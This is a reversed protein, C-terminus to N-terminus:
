PSFFRGRRGLVGLRLSLPLSLLRLGSVLLPPRLWRCLHQHRPGVLRGLWLRALRSLRVLWPPRALRWALRSRRALRPRRALPRRRWALPRRRARRPWRWPRTRGLCSRAHLRRAGVRAGSRSDDHAEEDQADEQFPAARDSRRGAQRDAQGLGASGPSEIQGIASGISSATLNAQPILRYYRRYPERNWRFLEEVGDHGSKIRADMGNRMPISQRTLGPLSTSLPQRAECRRAPKSRRPSRARTSIISSVALRCAMPSARSPSTAAPSSTPSTIRPRSARSRPM